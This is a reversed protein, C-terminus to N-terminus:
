VVSKRDTNNDFIPMSIAGFPKWNKYTNLDKAVSNDLLFLRDKKFKSGSGSPVVGGDYTLINAM